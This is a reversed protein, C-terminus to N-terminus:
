EDKDDEEPKVVHLHKGQGYLASQARVMQLYDMVKEVENPSLGERRFAMELEASPSDAHADPFLDGVRVGLLSAIHALRPYPTGLQGLEIRTLQEPSIGVIEALRERNIGRLKRYTRIKGGVFRRLEDNDM